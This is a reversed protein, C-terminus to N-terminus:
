KPGYSLPQEIVLKMQPATLYGKVQFQCIQEELRMESGVLLVVQPLSNFRGTSRSEWRLFPFLINQKVTSKPPILLSLVYSQPIIMIVVM